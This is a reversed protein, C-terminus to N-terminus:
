RLRWLYAALALGLAALLASVVLTASLPSWRLPEGRNYRDVLRAHRTGGTVNVAVGLLVLAIGV